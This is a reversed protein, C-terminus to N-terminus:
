KLSFMSKIKTFITPNNPNNTIMTPKDIPKNIFNVKYYTETPDAFFWANQNHDWNYIILYLDNKIMPINPIDLNTKYTLNNVNGKPLDKKGIILAPQMHDTPYITFVAFKDFKKFDTPLDKQLMDDKITYLFFGLDKKNENVNQSIGIWCYESFYPKLSEYTVTYKKSKPKKVWFQNVKADDLVLPKGGIMNKLELYKNKYKLYKSYYTM